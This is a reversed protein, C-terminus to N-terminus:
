GIAVEKPVRIKSPLDDVPSLIFFINTWNMPRSEPPDNTFRIMASRKGVGVACDQDKIQTLFDELFADFELRQSESYCDRVDNYDRLNDVLAAFAERAQSSPEGIFDSASSEAGEIMSRAVRGTDAHILEIVVTSSELQEM